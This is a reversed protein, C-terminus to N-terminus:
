PRRPNTGIVAIARLIGDSTAIPLFALTSLTDGLGTRDLDEAFSSIADKHVIVTEHHRQVARFFTLFAEKTGIIQADEDAEAPPIRKPIVRSGGAIGTTAALEFIMDLRSRPMDDTSSTGSNEHDSKMTLSQSTSDDSNDREDEAASCDYIAVLPQWPM